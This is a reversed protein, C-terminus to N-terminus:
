RLDPLGVVYLVILTAIYLLSIATGVIGFLVGYFVWAQSEGRKRAVRRAWLSLTLGLISLLGWPLVLLVIAGSSDGDLSTLAVPSVFTLVCGVLSFAFGWVALRPARQDAESLTSM